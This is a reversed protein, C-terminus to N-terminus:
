GLGDDDPPLSPDQEQSGKALAKRSAKLRVSPQRVLWYAAALALVVVGLGGLLEPNNEAGPPLVIVKRAVATLATVLVLEIQVVKRRMYATLNQLVELAILLNLLDGLVRTLDNGLWTSGPNGMLQVVLVLLHASAVVVVVALLLSLAKALTREGRDIFRLFVQDDLLQRPRLM